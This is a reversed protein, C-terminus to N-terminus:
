TGHIRGPIRRCAWSFWLFGDHWLFVVSFCYFVMLFGCSFLRFDYSFWLVDFFVLSVWSFVMPFGYVVISVCFFVICFVQIEAKVAGIHWRNQWPDEQFGFFCYFVMMGYSFLLFVISFGYSFWVFVVSVWLFVVPFCDFVTPFGYLCWLFGSFGM